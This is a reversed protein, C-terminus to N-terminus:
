APGPLFPKAAADEPHLSLLYAITEENKWPIQKGEERFAKALGRGIHRLGSRSYLVGYIRRLERLGADGPKKAIDQDLYLMTGCMCLVLMTRSCPLFRLNYGDRQKRLVSLHHMLIRSLSASAKRFGRSPRKPRILSYKRTLLIAARGLRKFENYFFPESLPDFGPDDRSGTEMIRIIKELFARKVAFYAEDGHDDFTHALAQRADALYAGLLEDKLSFPEPTKQPAQAKPLFVVAGSKKVVMDCRQGNEFVVVRKAM